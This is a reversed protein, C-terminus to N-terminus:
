NKLNNKFGFKDAFDNMTIVTKVGMDRAKQVKATTPDKCILVDVRKSLTSKLEGGREIIFAELEKNRFGTFLFAQGSFVKQVDTTNQAQQPSRPNSSVLRWLDNADMFERWKTIGEVFQTATKQEVGGLARLDSVAPVSGNPDTTMPFESVIVRLKREGLGRGFSNSAAMLALVDVSEFRGKIAEALKAASKAQFGEVRMLQAADLKIITGVTVFGADYIKRLLGGSLGPVKVKTFFFELQKFSVMGDTNSVVVIDIGTKNWEYAIGQPMGPEEAAELVQTIAPIVDGSRMVIIRAGPGIRNDFIFRANNGTARRVTVGGIHVGDFVVVPKLYGDKSVNWEVSLVTVEANNMTAVSKFAFAHKPNEGQIRRHGAADHAVVIGDVEFPSSRRREVLISSLETTTVREVKLVRHAVVEFGIKSLAALSKSPPFASPAIMEYAVFRIRKAITIDPKKANIVGAVTNRANKGPNPLGAFDQRSLILEGRVSLEESGPALAKAPLGRLFPILHSVDQGEVGNGRTYLKAPTGAGIHLLASIGDLKDSVVVDGSPYKKVWKQLELESKIKDMSGMWYPLKVKKGQVAAGVSKLIPHNPDRKRLAEKIEDYLQDSFLSTGKNFYRHNAEQLVDAIDDISLGALTHVPDSKIKKVVVATVKM